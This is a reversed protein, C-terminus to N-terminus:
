PSRWDRILFRLAEAYSDYGSMSKVYRRVRRLMTRETRNLNAAVRHPRVPSFQAAFQRKNM